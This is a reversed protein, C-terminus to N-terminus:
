GHIPNPSDWSLGYPIDRSAVTDPIEHSIRLIEPHVMLWRQVSCLSDRSQRDAVESHADMLSRSLPWLSDRVSWSFNWVLWWSDWSRSYSIAYSVILFSLVSWSSVWSQSNPIELCALLLILLIGPTIMLIEPIVLLFKLFPWLSDWAQSCYWSDYSQCYFMGSLIILFRQVTQRSDRFPDASLKASM